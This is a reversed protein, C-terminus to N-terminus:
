FGGQMRTLIAHIENIDADRRFALTNMRAIRGILSKLSGCAALSNHLDENVKQLKVYNDALNALRERLNVNENALAAYKEEWAKSTKLAKDREILAWGHANRWGEESHDAGRRFGDISKELAAVRERLEVNAECSRAHNDNLTRHEAKLTDLEDKTKLHARREAVLVDTFTWLVDGAAETKFEFSPDVVDGEAPKVPAQAPTDWEEQPAKEVPNTLLDVFKKWAPESQIAQPPVLPNPDQQPADETMREALDPSPTTMRALDGVALALTDLMGVVAKVDDESLWGPASWVTFSTRIAQDILMQLAPQTTKIQRRLHACLLKIRGAVEKMGRETLEQNGRLYSALHGFQDQITALSMTESM